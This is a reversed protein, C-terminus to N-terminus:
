YGTKLVLSCTSGTSQLDYASAALASTSTAQNSCGTGVTTNGQVELTRVNGQDPLADDLKTDINWAEETKLPGSTASGPLIASTTNGLTLVNGYNGTFFTSTDVATTGASPSSTGAALMNGVYVVNWNGNNLRSRPNNTGPTMTTGGIATYNGEVLGASALHLWFGSIENM